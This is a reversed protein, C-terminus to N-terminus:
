RQVDHYHFLRALTFVANRKSWFGYCYKNTMPQVDRNFSAGSVLCEKTIRLIAGGSGVNTIRRSDRPSVNQRM